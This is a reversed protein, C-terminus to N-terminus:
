TFPLPPSWNIGSVSLGCFLVFPPSIAGANAPCSRGTLSRPQCLSRRRLIHHGQLLLTPCDRRCGPIRDGTQETRAGYPPPPMPLHAIKSSRRATQGGELEERQKEGCVGVVYAGVLSLCVSVSVFVRVCISKCVCACEDM